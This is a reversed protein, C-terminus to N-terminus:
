FSSFFGFWNVHCCDQMWCNKWCFCYDNGDIFTGNDNNSNSYIDNNNGSLDSDSDSDNTNNSSNGTNMEDQLNAQAAASWHLAAVVQEQEAEDSSHQEQKHKNNNNINIDQISLKHNITEPLQEMPMQGFSTLLCLTPQDYIKPDVSTQKSGPSLNQELHQDITADSDASTSFANATTM